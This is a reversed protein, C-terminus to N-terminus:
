HETNGNKGGVVTIEHTYGLVREALDICFIALQDMSLYHEEGDVEGMAIGVDSPKLPLEENQLAQAATCVKLLLESLIFTTELEAEKEAM